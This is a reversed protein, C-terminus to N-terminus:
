PVAGPPMAVSAPQAPLAPAAVFSPRQMMTPAQPVAGPPMRVSQATQAPAAVFSPRQAMMPFQPAASQPMAMTAPQTMSSQAMMGPQATQQKTSAEMLHRMATAPLSVAAFQPVQVPQRVSGPMQQQGYSSYVAQGPQFPM